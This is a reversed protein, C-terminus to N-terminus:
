KLPFGNTIGKTPVVCCICRVFTLWSTDFLRIHIFGKMTKQGRDGLFQSGGYGKKVDWCQEVCTNLPSGKFSLGVDRSFQWHVGKALVLWSCVHNKLRKVHCLHSVSVKTGHSPLFVDCARVAFIVWVQYFLPFRINGSTSISESVYGLLYDIFIIYKSSMM